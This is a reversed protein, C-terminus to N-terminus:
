KVVYVSFYAACTELLTKTTVLYAGADGSEIQRLREIEDVLRNLDKLLQEKSMGRAPVFASPQGTQKPNVTSM